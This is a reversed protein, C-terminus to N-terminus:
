QISQLGESSVNEYVIDTYEAWLNMFQSYFESISLSDQQLIAIDYELQFRRATNNQGYIKKLYAWM